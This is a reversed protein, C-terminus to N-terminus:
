RRKKKLKDKEREREKERKRKESIRNTRAIVTAWFRYEKPTLGFLRKFMRNFGHVSRFDLIRAIEKIKLNVNNELLNLSHMAKVGILISKLDIDHKKKFYASLYPVSVGYNHALWKVTLFRCDEPKSNFAFELIKETFDKEEM